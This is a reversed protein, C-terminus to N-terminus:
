TKIRDQKTALYFYRPTGDVQYSDGAPVLYSFSYGARTLQREKLGLWPINITRGCIIEAGMKIAERVRALSLEKGLGQGQLDPFICTENDYFVQDNPSVNLASSISNIITQPNESRYKKNVLSDLGIFGGTTFGAVQNFERAIGLMGPIYSTLMEPFYENILEGTPYAEQTTPVQCSPCFSNELYRSCNQCIFREKWPEGGFAARYAEAIQFQVSPM